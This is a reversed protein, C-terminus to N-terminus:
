GRVQGEDAAVEHGIERGVFPLRELERVQLGGGELPEVQRRARRLARGELPDVTRGLVRVPGELPGVRRLGDRLRRGGRTRRRGGGLDVGGGAWGSVLAAGAGASPPAALAGVVDPSVATGAWSAVSSPAWTVVALSEAPCRLTAKM